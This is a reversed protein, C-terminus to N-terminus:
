LFTVVEDGERLRAEKVCPSRSGKQLTRPFELYPYSLLVCGCKLWLAEPLLAHQQIVLLDAEIQIARSIRM